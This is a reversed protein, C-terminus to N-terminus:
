KLVLELSVLAYRTTFRSDTAILDMVKEFMKQSTATKLRCAHPADKVSDVGSKFQTVVCGHSLENNRYVVYCM